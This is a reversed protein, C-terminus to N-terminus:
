NETLKVRSEPSNRSLHNSADPSSEGNTYTWEIVTYENNTSM